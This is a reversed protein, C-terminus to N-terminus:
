SPAISELWRVGSLVLDRLGLAGALPPGLRCGLGPPRPATTPSPPARKERRRGRDRRWNWGTGQARRPTRSSLSRPSRIEMWQRSGVKCGLAPRLARSPHERRPFEEGPRGGGSGCAADLGALHGAGCAWRPRFPQQERERAPFALKSSLGPFYFWGFAFGHGRSVFRVDGVGGRPLTRSVRPPPPLIYIYIYIKSVARARKPLGRRLGNPQNTKM